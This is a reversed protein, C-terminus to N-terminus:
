CQGPSICLCASGGKSIEREREREKGIYTCVDIYM